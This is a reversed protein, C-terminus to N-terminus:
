LLPELWLPLVEACAPPRWSGLLNLHLTCVLRAVDLTLAAVSEPSPHLSCATAVDDLTASRFTPLTQHRRNGALAALASCQPEGTFAAEPQGPVDLPNLARAPTNTQGANEHHVRRLRIRRTPNPQRNALLNPVSHNSIADLASEPFRYSSLKLRNWVSVVNHDDRMRLSGPLFLM